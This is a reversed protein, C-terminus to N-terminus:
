AARELVSAIVRDWRELIREDGHEREAWAQGRQASERRAAEDGALRDLAAYWDDESACHTGTGAAAMAARYAPTASVVAPLGLRWFFLLKNAPKGRALPDALDLPIVACDAQQAVRAVTDPSWAHLTVDTIWRRATALTDRRGFRGMFSYYHPATVLDLAVRRTRGLERLPRELLRFHVVNEPLGDWVLRFPTGAQWSTKRAPVEAGHLDLVVHVNACDRAILAQQEDTACVVAAARRCMGRLLKWWDLAPYRLQGLASKAAGRLVAKPDTRPLSLYADVTDYVLRARGAYRQWASIDALQTLVVVDYRDTAADPRGLIDFRVGRRAAWGAFRRRDGPADAGPSGPVYGFRLNAITM